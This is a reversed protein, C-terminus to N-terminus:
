PNSLSETDQRNASGAQGSLKRLWRIWFPPYLARKAHRTLPARPALQKLIQYYIIAADREGIEDYYRCMVGAFGTFESVHFRKRRPYLLKLDLKHDFIEPIKAIEGKQLCINAYNVRAFLYTPHRRYAELVCAEANEPEGAQLYAVSLYNSFMPVQSYTASLRELEPIAEKPQRQAKDYLDELTDRVQAPLRKLYPSDLPEDTIEYEEYVLRDSAPKKPVHRRNSSARQPRRKKRKKAAM